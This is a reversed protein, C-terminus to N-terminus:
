ESWDKIANYMDVAGWVAGAGGLIAALAPHKGAVAGQLIRKGVKDGFKDLIFDQTFNVPNTLEASSKM